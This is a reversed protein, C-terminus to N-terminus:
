FDSITLGPRWLTATIALVNNCINEVITVATTDGHALSTLQMPLTWISQETFIM